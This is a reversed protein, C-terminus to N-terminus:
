LWGEDHNRVVAGQKTWIVDQADEFSPHEKGKIDYTPANKLRGTAILRGLKRNFNDKESCLAIGVKWTGNEQLEFAATGGGKNAVGEFGDRVHFYLIRGPSLNM